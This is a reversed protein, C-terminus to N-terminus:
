NRQICVLGIKLSRGRHGVAAQKQRLDQGRLPDAPAIGSTGFPRSNPRDTQEAKRYLSPFAPRWLAAILYLREGTDRFYLIQKAKDAFAVGGPGFEAGASKMYKRIDYHTDSIKTAGESKQIELLIPFFEKPTFPIVMEFITTTDHKSEELLNDIIEVESLPPRASVGATTMILLVTLLKLM